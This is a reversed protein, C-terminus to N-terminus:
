KPNSLIGRAGGWPVGPPARPLDGLFNAAFVRIHSVCRGGQFGNFNQLNRYTRLLLLLTFVPAFGIYFRSIEYVLSCYYSSCRLFRCLFLTFGSFGRICLVTCFYSSCYPFRYSFMTFGLCGQIFSAATTPPAPCFGLCFSQRIFFYHSNSTFM